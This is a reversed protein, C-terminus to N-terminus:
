VPADIDDFLQGLEARRSARDQWVATRTTMYRTHNFVDAAAVGNFHSLNLPCQVFWRTLFRLLNM